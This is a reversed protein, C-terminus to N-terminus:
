VENGDSDVFIIEKWTYYQWYNPSSSSVSSSQATHLHLTINTTTIGYFVTKNVWWNSLTMSTNSSLIKLTTLSKCGEFSNNKFQWVNPLIITELDACDTFAESVLTADSPAIIEVINNCQAYSFGSFWCWLGSSCSHLGTAGYFDLSVNETKLQDFPNDNTNKGLTENQYGYMGNSDLRTYDGIITYHTVGQADYAAVVNELDTLSTYTVTDDFDIIATGGGSVIDDSSITYTYINNAAWAVEDVTYVKSNGDEDTATFVVNSTTQPIVMIYGNDATINTLGDTTTGQSTLGASYEETSADGLNGWSSTAITCEGSDVIGSVSILEIDKAEGSDKFQLIAVNRSFNLSVSGSAQKSYATTIDPLNANDVESMDYAILGKSFSIGNDASAGAPTYAYFEIDTSSDTPWFYSATSSWVGDDDKTFKAGNIFPTDSGVVYAYLTFSDFASSGIISGRTAPDFSASFSIPVLEESSTAPNLSPEESCSLALLSLSFVAVLKRLLNFQTKM